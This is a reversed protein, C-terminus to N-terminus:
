DLHDLGSSKRVFDLLRYFKQHNYIKLSEFSEDYNDNFKSIIEYVYSKLNKSNNHDNFVVKYKHLDVLDNEYEDKYYLFCIDRGINALFEDKIPIIDNTIKTLISDLYEDYDFNFRISELVKNVKAEKDDYDLSNFQEMSMEYGNCNLVDLYYQGMKYDLAEKEYGKNLTTQSFNNFIAEGEYNETLLVYWQFTSFLEVYCYLQKENGNGLTFLSLYHHPYDRFNHKDVEIRRDIERIPYFPIVKINELLKNNKIDIVCNLNERSVGSKTAFGASIKGLAQKFNINKINFDPFIIDADGYEINKNKVIECGEPIDINNRKLYGGCAEIPGFFYIINSDEDYFHVPRVPELGNKSWFVSISTNFKSLYIEAQTKEVRGKKSSSRDIRLDLLKKIFDFQKTFEKDVDDNLDSGCMLCLVDESTLHGAIANQIIHEEHSICKGDEKLLRIKNEKDEKSLSSLNVKVLELGCLYCKNM